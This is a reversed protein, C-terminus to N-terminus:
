VPPYLNEFWALAASSMSGSSTFVLLLTTLTLTLKAMVQRKTFWLM